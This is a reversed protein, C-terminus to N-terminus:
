RHRREWRSKLRHVDAWVPRINTYHFCSRLETPLKFRCVPVVHDLHWESKNEWTMGTTFQDELHQRFSQRDLSVISEMSHTVRARTGTSHIAWSRLRNRMSCAIAYGEDTQIRERHRRAARANTHNRHNAEKEDLLAVIEPRQSWELAHALRNM